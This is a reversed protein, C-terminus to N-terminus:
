WTQVLCKDDPYVVNNLYLLHVWWKRRCVAAEAGVLPAWQPGGAGLREWWTAAFWVVM